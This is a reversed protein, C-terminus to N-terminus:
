GITALGDSLVQSGRPNVTEFVNASEGAAWVRTTLEQGPLVPRAFRVRMSKLRAPDGGCPGRVLAGAAIAMTCMGHLVVGPFGAEQAYAPDTHIRNHDGSVEAYRRPLDEDVRRTEAYAPDGAPAPMPPPGASRGRQATGRIFMVSRLGAVDEGAASRIATAIVFREGAEGAAVDVLSGSVALTEGARVPRHLVHEQEAHVLKEVNASLEPDYLVANLLEGAAVVGFLPPALAPSGALDTGTVSAYRRLTDESVLYEYAPYTKGALAVNLM